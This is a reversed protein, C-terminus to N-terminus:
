INDQLSQNALQFTKLESKLIGFASIKNEYNVKDENIKEGVAENNAFSVSSGNNTTPIAFSLGSLTIM